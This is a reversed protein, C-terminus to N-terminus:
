YIEGILNRDIERSNTVISDIVKIGKKVKVGEWLISRKIEVDKDLHGEDGVVAWEELKASPDIQCHDGIAFPEDYLLERNANRYNDITGIDAWYHGTVRYSGILEGSNILQRYIDTIDSFEGEPIHALIEPEMVHIGTFALRGPLNDSAIDTIIGDDRIQIQNYPERDHLALTALGGSEMHKQCLHDLNIDTLIDGNIVIFPADDWFDDTNKIGGATGLIPTEVRVDIELGFPRGGNLYDLIQQHHHYANVVVPNIGHRKLYNIVRAIVARNVVPILVKPKKDTLPRLRTGLGAALIMAKM